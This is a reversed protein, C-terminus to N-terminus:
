LYDELEEDDMDVTEGVSGMEEPNGFAMIAGWLVINNQDQELDASEWGSGEVFIYMEAGHDDETFRYVIEEGNIEVKGQWTTRSYVIDAEKLIKIEAM